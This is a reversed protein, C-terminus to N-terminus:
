SCVDPLKLITVAKNIEKNSPRINERQITVFMVEVGSVKCQRFVRM